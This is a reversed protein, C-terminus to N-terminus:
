VKVNEVMDGVSVIRSVCPVKTGSRRAVAHRLALRAAELSGAQGSRGELAVSIDEVVEAELRARETEPFVGQTVVVPKGAPGGDWPVLVVASGLQGLKRREKFVRASPALQFRGAVLRPESAECEESRHEGTEPWLELREGSRAQLIREEDYGLRDLLGRHSELHWHQGHVPLVFSPRVWSLWEAIEEGHAHGSSHIPEGPGWPPRVDVGAQVFRDVLNGVARENGPIARASWGVFDGEGLQLLSDDGRAIRALPAM